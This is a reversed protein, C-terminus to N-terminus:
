PGEVLFADRSGDGCAVKGYDARDAVLSVDTNGIQHRRLAGRRRRGCSFQQTGVLREPQFPQLPLRLFQAPLHLSLQLSERALELVQPGPELVGAGTDPLTALAEIVDLFAQM